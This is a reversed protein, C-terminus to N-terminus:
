MFIFEPSWNVIDTKMRKGINDGSSPLGLPPTAGGKARIQQITQYSRGQKLQEKFFRQLRIERSHKGIHLSKEKVAARSM